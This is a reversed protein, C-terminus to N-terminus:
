AHNREDPANVLELLLDAHCPQGLPCWCALNRGALDRRAQAHRQPTWQDLDARYAAIAETLDHAVGCVKCTKGTAPHPNGYRTPRGVYVAGTPVVRKYPNGTVRVRVPGTTTPTETTTM